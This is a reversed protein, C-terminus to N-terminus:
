DPLGAARLRGVFDDRAAGRLPTRATFAALGFKPQVQLLRQAVRRAEGVRGLAVLCATLTRLNSTFAGNHGASKEAWAAADEYNGCLYHAQALIHEHYFVHADLPSLRLGQEARRVATECDGLYGCNCSSMTWALACSPGAALARDFLSTATAYDKLLFSHVHGNIALALADNRDREIAAAAARLAEAADAGPDPSWEQGVRYLLWYATYTYAPAYGPDYIIAQQLLGRARSFSGYDLRYLLDLAQLVLDYSTLNDPHKRMARRLEWERVHPAITVVVQSAIESQLAFLDALVGDYQDSRIVTGTEADSLETTIRLRRDARRVSGYLLYRVGLECAVANPEIEAGAYGLTSSRSIVFLEKLGSLGHIIDEIIGDAFYADDPDSPSQRFPLVAISPRSDPVHALVAPARSVASGIRLNFARVPQSIHRLHLDGLDQMQFKELETAVKEAVRASIIIDGPEAYSQLRAAVNVGEGFVDGADVIVDCLNIGIRFTIRRDPLEAAGLALLEQQLGIACHTAEVAGDFMAIFGDGTNKIIRGSHEIVRPELLDLRIQMLREHTDEEDAEMLRGYGVVDAALIAALRRELRRRAMAEAGPDVAATDSTRPSGRLELVVSPVHFQDWKALRTLNEQM